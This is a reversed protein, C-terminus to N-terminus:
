AVYRALEESTTTLREILTRLFVQNFRLQTATSAQEMLAADVRPSSLVWRLAAQAYTGGGAEYPRMDNLRAGMLTKMAIVGVGQARARDMLAPLKSQVAM